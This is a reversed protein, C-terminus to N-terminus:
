WFVHNAHVGHDAIIPSMPNPPILRFSTPRFPPSGIRKLTGVIMINVRKSKCCVDEHVNSIESATTIM